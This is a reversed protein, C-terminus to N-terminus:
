LGAAGKDGQQLVEMAVIIQTLCDRLEGRDKSYHMKRHCNPCLAATNEPTDPGGQALGVLHHSELYAEENDTLFPAPLKCLECAGDARQLVWARVKPDRYFQATSVHEAVPNQIGVPRLVKGRARIKDARLVYQAFDVTPESEVPSNATPDCTKCYNVDGLELNPVKQNVWAILEQLQNATVKSYKNGTRPNVSGPNRRDPLNHSARHIRFYWAQPQRNLNAMFGDPHESLWQEYGPDDDIWHVISM